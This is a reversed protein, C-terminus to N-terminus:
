EQQFIMGRKTHANSHRRAANARTTTRARKLDEGELPDALELAILLVLAVCEVRPPDVESGVLPM